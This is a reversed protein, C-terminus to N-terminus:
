RPCRTQASFSSCSKKRHPDIARERYPGGRRAAGRLDCRASRVCHAGAEPLSTFAHKPTAEWLDIRKRDALNVQDLQLDHHNVMTAATARKPYREHRSDGTPKDSVGYGPLDPCVVHFRDALVPAV